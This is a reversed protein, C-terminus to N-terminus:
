VIMRRYFVVTNKIGTLTRLSATWYTNNVVLNYPNSAFLNVMGQPADILILKMRKMIDEGNM